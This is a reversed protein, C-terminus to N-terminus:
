WSFDLAFGLKAFAHAPPYLFEAGTAEDVVASPFLPVDIGCELTPGYRTVVLLAGEVSVWPRLSARTVDLVGAHTVAVGGKVLARAGVSLLEFWRDFGVGVFATAPQLFVTRDGVGVPAFFTTEGGVLFTPYARHGLAFEISGRADPILPPAGIALGFAARPRVFWVAESDVAAPEEPDLDEPEEDVEMHMAHDAESEDGDVARAGDTQMPAQAVLADEILRGTRDSVTQCALLATMFRSEVLLAGEAASEEAAGVDTTVSVFQARVNVFVADATEPETWVDIRLPPTGKPLRVSLERLLAGEDVCSSTDDVVLTVSAREIESAGLLLLTLAVLV